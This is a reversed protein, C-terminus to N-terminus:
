TTTLIKHNNDAWWWLYPQACSHPTQRSGEHYDPALVHSTCTFKIGWDSAEKIADSWFLNRCRINLFFPNNTFKTFLFEKEIHGPRIKLPIWSEETKHTQQTPSFQSGEQSKLLLCWSWIFRTFKHCRCTDSTAAATWFWCLKGVCVHFAVM